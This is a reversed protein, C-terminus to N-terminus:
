TLFLEQSTAEWFSLLNHVLEQSLDESHIRCLSSALAGRFDGGLFHLLEESTVEESTVESPDESPDLVARPTPVILMPATGTPAAPMARGAHLWCIQCGKERRLWSCVFIECREHGRRALRPHRQPRESAPAARCRGTGTHSRVGGHTFTVCACPPM